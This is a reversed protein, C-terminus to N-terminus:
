LTIRPSISRKCLVNHTLLLLHFYFVHGGTPYTTSRMSEKYVHYWIVAFVAMGREMAQWQPVALPLRQLNIYIDDDAKVVYQVDYRSIATRLFLFTKLTLSSYREQSPNISWNYSSPLINKNTPYEQMSAGRGCRWLSVFLGATTAPKPTWLLCKM